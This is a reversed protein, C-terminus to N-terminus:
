VHRDQKKLLNKWNKEFISEKDVKDFIGPMTIHKKEIKVYTIVRASGSKGAQKSTIKWRVKYCNKGLLAGQLPNGALSISLEEYDKKISPYRKGPQKLHRTFEDTRSVSYNM